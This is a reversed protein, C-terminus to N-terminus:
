DETLDNARKQIDDRNVSFNLSYMVLSHENESNKNLTTYIYICLNRTERELNLTCKKHGNTASFGYM